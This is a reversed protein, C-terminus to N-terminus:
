ILIRIVFLKASISYAANALQLQYIGCIQWDILADVVQQLRAINADDTVRLYMKADDAFM